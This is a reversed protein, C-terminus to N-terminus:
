LSHSMGNRHIVPGVSLCDCSYKLLWYKKKQGFTRIEKINKACLKIFFDFCTARIPCYFTDYSFFYLRSLGDPQKDVQKTDASLLRM